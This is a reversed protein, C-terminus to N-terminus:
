PTAGVTVHEVPDRRADQPSLGRATRGGRPHSREDYRSARAVRVSCASRSSSTRRLRARASSAHSRRPAGARDRLGRARTSAAVASTSAPGSGGTRLPDRSRAKPVGSEAVGHDLEVADAMAEGPTGPQEAPHARARGGPVSPTTPGFPAPM